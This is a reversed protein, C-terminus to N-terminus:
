MYAIRNVVLSFSIYPRLLASFLSAFVPTIVKPKALKDWEPVMYFKVGELAGPLMAGRILLIALIVYPFTATFYVM